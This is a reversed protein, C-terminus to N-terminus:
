LPSLHRYLLLNSVEPEDIHEGNYRLYLQGDKALQSSSVFGVKSNPYRRNYETVDNEVTKALSQWLKPFKAAIIQATDTAATESRRKEEFAEALNELLGVSKEGSSFGCELQLNLSLRM